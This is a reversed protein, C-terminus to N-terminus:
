FQGDDDGSLLEKINGSQDFPKDEGNKASSAAAVWQSLELSVGKAQKAFMMLATKTTGNALSALSPAKVIFGYIGGTFDKNKSSDAAKTSGILIIKLYNLCSVIEDSANYYEIRKDIEFVVQLLRRRFIELNQLWGSDIEANNQVTPVNTSDGTGDTSQIQALCDPIQASQKAKEAMSLLDMTSSKIVLAWRLIDSQSVASAKGHRIFDWAKFVGSKVVDYAGEFVAELPNKVSMMAAISSYKWANLLAQPYDGAKILGTVNGGDPNVMAESINNYIQSKYDGGGFYFGRDFLGNKKCELTVFNVCCFTALIFAICIRKFM